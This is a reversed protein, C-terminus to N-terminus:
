AILECRVAVRAAGGFTCTFLTLGYNGEKMETIRDPQLTEIEVVRYIFANGNVDTFVVQDDPLLQKIKGFHTDYNHACIIIDGAYASGTYRCPAERLNAYSWENMIPLKLQLEPIDLTGVYEKGDIVEVPMDEGLTQYQYEQREDIMASLQEQIQIARKGSQATRLLNYGTLCVAAVILLTGTWLLWQGKNATKKM